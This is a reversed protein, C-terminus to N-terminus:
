NEFSKSEEQLRKILKPLFINVDETIIYDSIEMIKAYPDSNISIIRKSDMIASTHQIQGSIGFSIYLDPKVTKGTQGIMRKEDCWDNLVPVRTAGVEASSLLNAVKTLKQFNEKTGLGRGGAIIVPSKEIPISPKIWRTPKEINKVKLNSLGHKCKIKIFKQAKKEDCKKKNFIGQQVTAMQPRSNPCLISATLNGSFGPRKMLLLGDGYKDSNIIDLNNCHATLGTSLRQALKSALNEGAESAPFLIISPKHQEILEEWMDPFIEGNYHKLTQPDETEENHIIIDPGYEAILSLYQKVNFGFVVAYLKEGLKDALERGKTLLELSSDLVKMHDKIETFVWIDRYEEAPM